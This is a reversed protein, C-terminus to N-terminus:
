AAYRNKKAALAEAAEVDQEALELFAAVRRASMFGGAGCSRRGPLPTSRTKRRSSSPGGVDVPIGMRRVIMWAAVPDILEADSASDPLIPLLDYDSGLRARGEARSGFLWIEEPALREVLRALVAELRKTDPDVINMKCNYTFGGTSDLPGAGNALDDVLAELRIAHEPELMMGLM